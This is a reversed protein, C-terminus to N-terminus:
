GRISLDRRPYPVSLGAAAMRPRLAKTQEWYVPWYVDASAWARLTVTLSFDDASQVLIQPAPESLFRKEEAIIDRMVAFAADVSDDFSIRASLEMRRKPNRSYNKLPKGWISSNPASIFVGDGTELTTTFLDMARVTGSVEGCEIFDGRRYVRLFILIIGSAINSLTDKLALAVSVGAAGLIAILSTTNVGFLDLIMIACVVVVAYTFVHKLLSLLTEDLKLAGGAAKKFIQGAAAMLLRGAALILIGLLVRQGVALIAASRKMWFELLLEKVNMFSIYDRKAM